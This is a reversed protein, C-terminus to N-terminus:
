SYIVDLMLNASNKDTYKTVVPLSALDLERSSILNLISKFEFYSVAGDRNRIEKKSKYAFHSASKFLDSESLMVKIQEDDFGRDKLKGAIEAVVAFRTFNERYYLTEKKVLNTGYMFYDKANGYFSKLFSIIKSDSDIQFLESDAGNAKIAQATKFYRSANKPGGNYEMVGYQDAELQKLGLYRGKKFLDGLYAVGVRINTEPDLIQTANYTGFFGEAYVWSTLQMLGRAGAPSIADPKGRSEMSILALVANPNVKNQPHEVNYEFCARAVMDSWQAVEPTFIPLIESYRSIKEFTKVKDQNPDILDGLDLGLEEMVENVNEYKFPKEFTPNEEISLQKVEKPEPTPTFEPAAELTTTIVGKPTADVIEPVQIDKIDLTLEPTPRPVPPKPEAIAKDKPIGTIGAMTAVGILKLFSRRNM